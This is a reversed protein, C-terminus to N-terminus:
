SYILKEGISLWIDKKKRYYHGGIVTVVATGIGVMWWFITNPIRVAVEAIFAAYLGIVSWYMFYIHLKVWNKTRFLVPLVGVLLYVFGIVAIFHFVGFGGFLRYIFLATILVILMNVVYAYGFFKHKKTGKPTLLVISGFVLALISGILHILGIEDHIIQTM